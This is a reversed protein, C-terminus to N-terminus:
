PKPHRAKIAARSALWTGPAVEGAQEEFYLPDSESKYAARRSEIVAQSARAASGASWEAEQADRAAEEEPTLAVNVGDVNKFRGM